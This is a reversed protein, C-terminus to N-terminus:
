DAYLYRDFISTDEQMPSGKAFKEAELAEEKAAAAIQVFDEQTLVGQKLLKKEFMAIPERKKLEEIDELRRPEGDCMHPMGYGHSCIRITKCEVLTPGNGERARKVADGVAEAVAVVDQGDVVVSPMGYGYALNAMDKLPYLKESSSYQAISNNELLFVIPLKWLAAVNAGEHWTGRAITGDGFCLVVVQGTGNKKAALGWGAGYTFTGGLIGSGGLIGYEEFLMHPGGIGTCCGTTRGCQEAIFYKMDIGKSILHPAGHARLHQQLIDDKRLFTAAGVGAADGWGSEHWMFMKGEAMLRTGLTDFARARVLNTYLKILDKKNFKM